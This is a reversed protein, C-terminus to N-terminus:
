SNKWEVIFGYKGTNFSSNRWDNLYLSVKLMVFIVKNVGEMYELFLLLTNHSEETYFFEVINVHKVASLIKVERTM